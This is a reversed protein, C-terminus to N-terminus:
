DWLLGQQWNGGGQDEGGGKGLVEALFSPLVAIEGSSGGM